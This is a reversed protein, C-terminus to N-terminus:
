NLIKEFYKTYRDVIEDGCDLNFKKLDKLNLGLMILHKYKQITGENKNHWSEVLNPIYIESYVLRKTLIEGNQDTLYGSTKIKENKRNGILNIIEVERYEDSEIDVYFKEINGVNRKVIIINCDNTVLINVFSQEDELYLDLKRDKELSSKVSLEESLYKIKEVDEDLIESLFKRLIDKDQYIIEKFVINSLGKTDDLSKEKM